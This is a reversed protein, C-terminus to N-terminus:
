ELLLVTNSVIVDVGPAKMLGAAIIVFPVDSCGWGAATSPSTQLASCILAWIPLDSRLWDCFGMEESRKAHLVETTGGQCDVM